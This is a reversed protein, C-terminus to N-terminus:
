EPLGQLALLAAVTGLQGIGHQGQAVGAVRLEAAEAAPEVLAKGFEASPAQQRPDVALRLEVLGEAGPEVGQQRLQAARCSRRRGGHRGRHGEVALLLGPWGPQQLVAQEIARAGALY